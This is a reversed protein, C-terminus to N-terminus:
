LKLNLQLEKKLSEIKSELEAIKPQAYDPSDPFMDKLGSIESQAEILAVKGKGILNQQSAKKKTIETKKLGFTFIFHTIVKGRKKQSFKVTIDTRENIQNLAPDLVRAKLNNIRNYGSVQLMDRFEQISTERRGTGNWQMLLEYMRIAYSSTLKSVNNLKYQTFRGVLNTIYPLVTVGFRLRIIGELDIYEIREVWRCKIKINEEKIYITRNFLKTAAEALTRYSKQSKTGFINQIDSASIEIITKLDIPKIPDIKSIASLMIRQENLTLSYNAEILHNSKVILNKEM